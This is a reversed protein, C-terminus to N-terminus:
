YTPPELGGVPVMSDVVSWIEIDAVDLAGVGELHRLGEIMGEREATPREFAPVSPM